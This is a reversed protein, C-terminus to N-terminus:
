FFRGLNSGGDAGYEVLEITFEIKAPQGNPWFHTQADQIARVCWRGYYRARSGAMAGLPFAKGMAADNRMQNLRSLTGAFLPHNPFTTGHLTIHEEGPGLFQQAPRRGLREQSAWRYEWKRDLEHFNLKQVTFRLDGLGMLINQDSM